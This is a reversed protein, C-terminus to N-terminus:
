FFDIRFLSWFLIKDRSFYKLLHWFFSLFHYGYICNTLEIESIPFDCLDDYYGFGSFIGRFYCLGILRTGIKDLMKSFSRRFRSLGVSTFLSKIGLCWNPKLFSWLLVIQFFLFVASNGQISNPMVGSAVFQFLVM